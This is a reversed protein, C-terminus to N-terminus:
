VAADQTHLTALRAAEARSYGRARLRRYEVAWTIECAEVVDHRVPKPRVMIKKM